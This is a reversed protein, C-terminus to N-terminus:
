CCTRVLAPSKLMAPRVDSAVACEREGARVMAGPVTNATGCAITLRGAISKKLLSRGSREAMSRLSSTPEGAKGRAVADDITADGFAERRKAIVNAFEPMPHERLKDM